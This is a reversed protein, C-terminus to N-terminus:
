FGRLGEAFTGHKEVHENHAEIARRNDRLWQQRRIEALDENLARELSASLAFTLQRM